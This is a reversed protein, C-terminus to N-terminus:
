RSKHTMLGTFSQEKRALAHCGNQQSHVATPRHWKSVDFWRWLSWTVAMARCYSVLGCNRLNSLVCTRASSLRALDLRRYSTCRPLLSSFPTTSATIDLTNNSCLFSLLQPRSEGSSQLLVNVVCPSVWETYMSTFHTQQRKFLLVCIHGRLRRRDCASLTWVWFPRM